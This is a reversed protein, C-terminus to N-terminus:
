LEVLPQSRLYEDFKLATRAHKAAFLQQSPPISYYSSDLGQLLVLDPFM